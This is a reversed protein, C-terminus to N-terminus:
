SIREENLVYAEFNLTFERRGKEDPGINNPGAQMGKMQVIWLGGTTLIRNRLGHLANYISWAVTKAATPNQQEARVRVQFTCSDYPQHAPSEPGGTTYIAVALESTEPLSELFCNGAIGMALTVIGQDSLYQAVEDTLM